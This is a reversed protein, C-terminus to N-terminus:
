DKTQANIRKKLHWHESRLKLQAQAVADFEKHMWALQQGKSLSTDVLNLENKKPMPQDDLPEPTALRNRVGNEELFKYYTAYNRQYAAEFPRFDAREAVDDLEFPMFDDIEMAPIQFLSAIERTRTDYTFLVSPVGQALAIACGHLRFGVMFDINQRIHAEWENVDFGSFLRDRHMKLSKRSRRLGLQRMIKILAAQRDAEPLHNATSELKEGQAYIYSDPFEAAKRVLMRHLRESKIVDSCYKGGLQNNLNIGFRPFAGTAEIRVSPNMSRYMSPCGIVRVNKVGMDAFIEASYDGRVGLSTSKDSVTQWFRISGENLKIKRRDKAQAGVGMAVVPCDLTELFDSVGTLDFDAHVYNSGRILVQDFKGEPWLNPNRTAGFQINVIEDSITEKLISDYVLIDGTNLSRESFFKVPDPVDLFASQLDDSITAGGNLILTRTM